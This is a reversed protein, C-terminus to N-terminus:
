SAQLPRVAPRRVRSPASGELSGYGTIGRTNKRFRVRWIWYLMAVIVILVPLSLLPVIRLPKPFVKAQGLFFSGTAIFMAFCMRWLHRALRRPGQIGWVLMRADGIAALLTVAGFFFYIGPPYGYKKGTISYMAQLGFTVYTLGLSWALIAAGRDIWRIGVADRRFTILGTVVLYFALIGGLATGLDPKLAAIVAGTLGLIVMAYVFIMGTKRHLKAGKLAFLAVFGVAIAILGATIHIPLLVTRM